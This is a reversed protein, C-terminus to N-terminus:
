GPWRRRAILLDEPVEFYTAEKIIHHIREGTGIEHVMKKGSWGNTVRLPGLIRFVLTVTM